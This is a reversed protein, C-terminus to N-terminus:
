RSFSDQFFINRDPGIVPRRVVTPCTSSTWSSAIARRSRPLLRNARRRTPRGPLWRMGSIPAASRLASSARCRRRLRSGNGGRRSARAAGSFSVASMTADGARAAAVIRQCDERHDLGEVKWVDPDVGANQLELIAEVMLSPRVEFDYTKQKGKLEDLQAKEAPVLLEFMFRSRSRKALFASLRKLRAVQRWNLARDGQPSYHVLVKCFTPDFAEVHQVFDEGYEFDFEHQGSKEAPCATVIAKVTADRLIASGFQEDVLIGAKEVPVGAARAARFGDYIVQKASAIDATQADNLPPKWGFLKSQFSGYHDFPLIYLARDYGRPM